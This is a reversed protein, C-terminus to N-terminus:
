TFCAGVALLAKSNIFWSLTSISDVTVDLWNMSKSEPLQFFFNDPLKIDSLWYWISLSFGKQWKTAYIVLTNMLSIQTLWSTIGRAYATRYMVTLILVYKQLSNNAKGIKHLVKTNKTNEWVYFYQQSLTAGSFMPLQNLEGFMGTYLDAKRLIIWFFGLWLLFIQEITIGNKIRKLFRSKKINQVTNTEGYNNTRFYSVKVIHMAAQLKRWLAGASHALTKRQPGSVLTWM